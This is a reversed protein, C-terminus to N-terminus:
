LAGQVVEPNIVICSKRFNFRWMRRAGIVPNGGASLFILFKPEDDM